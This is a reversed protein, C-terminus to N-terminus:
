DVNEYGSTISFTPAGAAAAAAAALEEDEGFTAADAQVYGTKDAHQPFADPKLITPPNVGPVHLITLADAGDMEHLWRQLSRERLQAASINKKDLRGASNKVDVTLGGTSGFRVLFTGPQSNALFAKAEAGSIFGHITRGTWSVGPLARQLESNWCSWIENVIEMAECFSFLGSAGAAHPAPRFWEAFKDVSIQTSPDLKGSFTRAEAAGLAAQAVLFDLDSDSLERFPAIHGVRVLLYAYYLPIFERLPGVFVVGRTTDVLCELVLDLQEIMSNRQSFAVEMQAALMARLQERRPAVGFLAAGQASLAALENLIQLPALPASLPNM